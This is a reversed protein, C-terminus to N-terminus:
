SRGAVSRASPRWPSLLSSTLEWGVDSICLGLLGVEALGKWVATSISRRDGHARRAVKAVTDAFDTQEAALRLDIM